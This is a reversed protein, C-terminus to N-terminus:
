LSLSAMVTTLQQYGLYGLPIMLETLICLAIPTMSIPSCIARKSDIISYTKIERVRIMHDREIKLDSFAERLSLDNVTLKLKGIFRKFEIIPTKSQLRTLEKEPDSAYSHYCYLLMNKHIKSHQCMQWIADLTDINMNMLIAMLTQLQLFDDEAETQILKKRVYLKVDPLFWATCGIGICVIMYYWHFYSAKLSKDKDELRKVQDSIQLDSLGPMAGTISSKFEDETWEHDREIYSNDLALISAKSYKDMESSKTLSLQQTSTLIFSRSLTIASTVILLSTLIGIAASLLKEGYYQEISKQSLANKLNKEHRVRKANKPSINAVINFIKTNSLAKNVFQVRDDEKVSSSSNVNSIAMYCVICSLLTISRGFYGILGNYILATGPIISVFQNEILKTIFVPLLPLYELMKFKAKMTELKQIEANIDSTLMTLSNIFNSQGYEDTDDGSNHINFCVGAFTQLPRFPSSEYFKLLALESNVGTLINYIEGFSKTLLPSVDAEAIAETVSGLRLYEQRVASLSDKLAKYVKLNDKDIQKNVLLNNVVVAFVTCILISVMDRFMVIASVVLAVSIGSTIILYKTSLEHIEYINYISLSSLRGSIKMLQSQTLFFSYLFEYAKKYFRQSAIKRDTKSKSGTLIIFVGVAVVFLMSLILRIEYASM